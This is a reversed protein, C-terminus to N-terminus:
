IFVRRDGFNIGDMECVLLVDRLQILLDCTDDANFVNQLNPNDENLPLGVLNQFPSPPKKRKKLKLLIQNILKRTQEIKPLLLNRGRKPSKPLSLPRSRGSNNSEM